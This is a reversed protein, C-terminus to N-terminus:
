RSIVLASRPTTVGPGVSNMARVSFRYWGRPLLVIAHRATAPWPPLATVGILRRSRDYRWATIVYGTIPAGGTARPRTWDVFASARGGRVGSWALVSRPAGPPTAPVVVRTRASPRGLGAANLPTVDFSYAIGNALRSVVVTRADAPVLSSRLVHTTRGAFTRVRYGTVPSSGEYPPPSWTLVARSPGRRAAVRAPPAATQGYRAADALSFIREVPTSSGRDNLARVSLDYAAGAILGSFTRERADAGLSTM